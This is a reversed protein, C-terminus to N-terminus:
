KLKASMHMLGKASMKMNGSPSSMNVEVFINSDIIRFSEPDILIYGSIKMLILMEIDSPASIRLDVSNPYAKVLDARAKDYAAKAAVVDANSEFIKSVDLNMIENISAVIVKNNNLYGWGKIIYKFENDIHNVGIKSLQKLIFSKDAKFIYDGSRVPNKPFVGTFLNMSESISAIFEDMEKKKMNAAILAPSTIEVERVEGFKDTLMRIEIWNHNPFSLTEGGIIIKNVYLDWTLLDGLKAIKTRGTMEIYETENFTKSGENGSIKMAQSYNFDSTVPSYMPQIPVSIPSIYGNFQPIDGNELRKELPHRFPTCASISFVLICIIIIKKM